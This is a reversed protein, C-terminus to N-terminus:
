KIFLIKKLFKLWFLKRYASKTIEAISNKSQEIKIIAKKIM